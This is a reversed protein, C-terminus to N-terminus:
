SSVVTLTFAQSVLQKTKGKGFTATITVPYSGTASPTGSIVASGGSIDEL